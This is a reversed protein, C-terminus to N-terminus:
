MMAAAAVLDRDPAHRAAGLDDRPAGPVLGPARQEGREVGELALDLAQALPAGIPAGLARRLRGRERHDVAEEGVAVEPEHDGLGALLDVEVLVREGAPQVEVRELDAPADRELDLGPELA